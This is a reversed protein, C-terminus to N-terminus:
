NIRLNTVTATSAELALWILLDPVWRTNVLTLSTIPRGRVLAYADEPRSVLHTLRPVDAPLLLQLDWASSRLELHELLPQHRLITILQSNYASWTKLTRHAMPGNLILTTLSLSSPFGDSYLDRSPTGLWEFEHLTLSKVNRMHQLSTPITRSLNRGQKKAGWKRLWHKSLATPTVVRPFRDIPVPFLSGDFSVVNKAIEPRKELAQFFKLVRQQDTSPITIHTYMYPEIINKM